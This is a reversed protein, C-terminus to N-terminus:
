CMVLPIIIPVYISDNNCCFNFRELSMLQIIIVVVPIQNPDHFGMTRIDERVAMPIWWLRGARAEYLFHSAVSFTWDSRLM